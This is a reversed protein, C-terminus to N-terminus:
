FQSLLLLYQSSWLMGTRDLSHPQYRAYLASVPLKLAVVHAPVHTSSSAMACSQLYSLLNGTLRLFRCHRTELKYIEQIKRVKAYKILKLRCSGCISTPLYSKSLSYDKQLFLQIQVEFKSSILRLDGGGNFCLACLGARCEDHTKARRKGLYRAAPAKPM